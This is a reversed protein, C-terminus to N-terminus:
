FNICLPMSTFFCEIKLLYTLLYFHYFHLIQLSDLGSYLIKIGCVSGKHVYEHNM